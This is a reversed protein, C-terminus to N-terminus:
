TMSSTDYKMSYSEIAGGSILKQLLGDGVKFTKGSQLFRIIITDSGILIGISPGYSQKGGNWKFDPFYLFYNQSSWTYKENKLFTLFEDAQKKISKTDGTFKNEPTSVAFSRVVENLIKKVINMLNFQKSEHIM